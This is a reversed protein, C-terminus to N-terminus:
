TAEAGHPCRTPNIAILFVDQRFFRRRYAPLNKNANFNLLSIFIFCWNSWRCAAQM